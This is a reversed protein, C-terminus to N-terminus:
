FMPSGVSASPIALTLGALLGGLGSAFRTGNVNLRAKEDSNMM